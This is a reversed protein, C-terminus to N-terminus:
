YGTVSSRTTDTENRRDIRDKFMQYRLRRLHEPDIRRDASAQLELAEERYIDAIAM